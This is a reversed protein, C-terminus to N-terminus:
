RQAPAPPDGIQSLCWVKIGVIEKSICDDHANFGGKDDM